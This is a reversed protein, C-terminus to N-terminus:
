VVTLVCKEKLIRLPIALALSKGDCEVKAAFFIAAM